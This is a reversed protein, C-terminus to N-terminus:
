VYISTGTAWLPNYNYGRVVLNGDDQLALFYGNTGSAWLPNNASDRVVLNGDNQFQVYSGRDTHSSWLPRDDYTRRLVLNGDSQMVLRVTDSRSSVYWGRDLRCGHEFVRNPQDERAPCHTAAQAAAPPLFLVLGVAALLMLLGHRASVTVVRFM